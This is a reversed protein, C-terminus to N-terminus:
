LLRFGLISNLVALTFSPKGSSRVVKSYGQKKINMDLYSPLVPADSMDIIDGKENITKPVKLSDSYNPNDLSPLIELSAISKSKGYNESDDGGFIEIIDDGIGTVDDVTIPKDSCGLM